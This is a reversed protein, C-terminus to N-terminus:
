CHMFGAFGKCCHQWTTVQESLAIVVVVGWKRCGGHPTTLVFKDSARVVVQGQQGLWIAVAFLWCMNFGSVYMPSTKAGEYQWV